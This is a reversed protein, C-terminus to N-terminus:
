HLFCLCTVHLFLFFINFLWVCTLLDGEGDSVKVLNAVHFRFLAHSVLCAFSSVSFRSFYFVCHPLASSLVYWWCIKAWRRKSHSEAGGVAKFRLVCNCALRFRNKTM